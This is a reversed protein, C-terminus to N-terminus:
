HYKLKKVWYIIDDEKMGDRWDRISRNYLLVIADRNYIYYLLINAAYDTTEDNLLSLWEKRKMRVIISDQKPTLKVRVRYGIDFIPFCTECAVKKISFNISKNNIFSLENTINKKERKSHAKQACCSSTAMILFGLIVLNFKM